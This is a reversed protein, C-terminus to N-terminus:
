RLSLLHSERWPTQSTDVYFAARKTTATADVSRGAAVVVFGGHSSMLVPADVPLEFTFRQGAELYTLPLQAPTGQPSLPAVTPPYLLQRAYSAAAAGGGGGALSSVSSVAAAGMICADDGLTAAICGTSGMTSTSTFVLPRRVNGVANKATEHKRRLMLPANESAIILLDEGGLADCTLGPGCHLAPLATTSTTGGFTSSVSSVAASVIGAGPLAGRALLARAVVAPSVRTLSAAPVDAALEIGDFRVTAPQREANVNLVYVDPLARQLVTARLHSTKGSPPSPRVWAIAPSGDASLLYPIAEADVDGPRVFVHAEPCPMLGDPSALLQVTAVTGMAGGVDTKCDGDLDLRQALAGGAAHLGANVKEGFTAGQTQKPVTVNMSIRGDAAESPSLVLTVEEGAPVETELSVDEVGGDVQALRVQTKLTDKLGSTAKEVVKREQFPGVQLGADDGSLRVTAPAGSLNIFRYSLEVLAVGADTAGPAGADAVECMVPPVPKDTPFVCSLASAGVTVVTLWKTKTM